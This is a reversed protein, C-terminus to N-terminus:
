GIFIKLRRKAQNLLRLDKKYIPKIRDFIAQRTKVESELLERDLMRIRRKEEEELKKASKSKSM